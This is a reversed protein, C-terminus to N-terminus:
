RSPPKPLRFPVAVPATTPNATTKAASKATAAAKAEPSLRAQEQKAERLLPLDPDANKWSKLVADYVTAAEPERGQAALARALGLTALAHDLSLPMVENHVLIRRFELEALESQKGALYAKGRLLPVDLSSLEYGAAKHLEAIATDPRQESMDVYAAIEPGTVMQWLTAIPHAALDQQMIATAKELEGVEAWAKAIAGNNVMEPLQKLTDSATAVLGLSAEIHAVRALERDAEGVLGHSRFLEASAAADAEGARARGEAFERESQMMRFRAEAPKDRAWNMEQQMATADQRLVAIQYRTTHLEAGDLGHSTALLITGLAEDIKGTEMQARALLAYVEVDNGDLELAKWAPDLALEPHGMALEVRALALLPRVDMRFVASWAQATSIAKNLDGSVSEAYETTVRLREVDSLHERAEWGHRLSAISLEHQGAQAYMESLALQAIAFQEDLELAHQMQGIAEALNGASAKQEAQAYTKLAAVVSEREGALPKSYRRVSGSSEGLQERLDDGVRGLVSIVGDPTEAIGRSRALERDTGCDRATVTVLYRQSVRKLDGSLYADDGRQSCAKQAETTTLPQGSALHLFPSQELDLALAADLAKDLEGTQDNMQSVVLRVSDPRPRNLWQWGFWGSVALALAGALVLMLKRRRAPEGSTLKEPKSSDEPDEDGSLYPTYGPAEVPAPIDIGEAWIEPEFMVEATLEYGGEAGAALVTEGPSVISLLARLKEIYRALPPAEGETAPLIGALLEAEPIVRHPNRVFYELLDFEQDSLPIERGDLACLRRRPDVELGVVRYRGQRRAV